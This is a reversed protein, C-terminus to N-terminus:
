RPLIEAPGRLEGQRLKKVVTGHEVRDGLFRVVASAYPNYGDTSIQFRGSTANRLKQCFMDTNWQDRKGLQWAVLLKTNREIATFLYSDGVETRFGKRDATKKSAIFSSGFRM